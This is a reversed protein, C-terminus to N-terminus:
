RQHPRGLRGAAAADAALNAEVSAVVDAGLGTLQRGVGAWARLVTDEFGRYRQEFAAGLDDRGWPRQASAAAIAGGLQERRATVAEGAHSLDAGGRRARWPDLWLQGAM